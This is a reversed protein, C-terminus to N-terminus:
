SRREPWDPPRKEFFASIGEALTEQTLGADMMALGSSMSTFALDWWINATTKALRLGGPSRAKLEDCWRGTAAELEEKPVVDNIWGWQYAVQASVIKSLFTIERSRKDGISMALFNTGGAVPAWGLKTGSQGLRASDAAIALDCVIVLENGGGIADGNVMAVIPKPCRRMAMFAQIAQNGTQIVVDKTLTRLDGGASFARGAGTLVIVDVDKLWGVDYVAAGLQRFHAESLPNLQEPRNMTLWAVRDKIEVLLDERAAEM